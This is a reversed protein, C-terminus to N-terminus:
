EHSSTPQPVHADEGHRVRHESRCRACWGLEDERLPAGCGLCARTAVRQYHQPHCDAECRLAHRELRHADTAWECPRECLILDGSKALRAQILGYTVSGQRDTVRVALGSDTPTYHHWVVEHYGNDSRDGKFRLHGALAWITSSLDMTGDPEVVVVGWNEAALIEHGVHAWCGQLQSPSADSPMAAPQQLSCGCTGAITVLLFAVAVCSCFTRQNM